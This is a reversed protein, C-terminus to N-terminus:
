LERLGSPDQVIRLAPHDDQGVRQESQYSLKPDIGKISKGLNRIQNQIARTGAQGCWSSLMPSM